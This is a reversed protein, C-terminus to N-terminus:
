TTSFKAGGTFHLGASFSAVGAVTHGNSIDTLNASGRWAAKKGAVTSIILAVTLASLTGANSAQKAMTQAQAHTSFDGSLTATADRLGAVNKTDTDGFATTDNNGIAVKVDWQKINAVTSGGVLVKGSVGKFPDPNAM